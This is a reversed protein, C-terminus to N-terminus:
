VGEFRYTFRRGTGEPVFGEPFFGKALVRDLVVAMAVDQAVPNGGLTLSAPVWLTFSSNGRRPDFEDVQALLEEVTPVSNM